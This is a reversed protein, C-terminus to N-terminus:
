VRSWTGTDDGTFRLSVTGSASTQNLAVVKIDITGNGAQPLQYFTIQGVDSYSGSIETSGFLYGSSNRARFRYSLTTIQGGPISFSFEARTTIVRINSGAILQQAKLAVLENEQWHIEKDM